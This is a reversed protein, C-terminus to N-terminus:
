DEIVYDHTITAVGRLTAAVSCYKNLSLDLAREVKEPNLGDGALTFRLHITTFAYPPDPLQRGDVDVRLGSLNQRQRELIAVVDHAACSALGMLLLDSPKAAKWEQGSSEDTSWSGSMVTNGSSDRCAFLRSQEQMWKIAITSM